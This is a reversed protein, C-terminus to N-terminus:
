QPRLMKCETPLVTDKAAVRAETKWGYGTNESDYKVGPSGVKTFSALYLPVMLQHDDARMQTHGVPSLYDMGELARAILLPDASKAQNIAKALMELERLIAIYIWDEKYRTKFDTTLKELNRSELNAHWGIITKVGAGAAGYAQPTGGLFALLTYFNATLGASRSAKLLLALDTSWDGTIVTDAGSAIIKSVYPAFDKVKGFPHLDNGVIEIDPRKRALMEVSIRSVSQGYAYDQNLLYVKHIDKQKAIVDTLVNVQMGAHADFHFHWFSCKAGTLAPDFGGFDLFLLRHESNRTNHKTVAESIAHDVSSIYSSVIQIDQDIAQQLAILSDQPTGKGDFAVLELKRGGLVGGQSNIADIVSQHHRTNSEGQSAFTGSLPGIYAIKIPDGAAQALLSITSLLLTPLGLYVKQM